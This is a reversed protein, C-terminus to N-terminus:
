VPEVSNQVAVHGCFRGWRQQYSYVLLVITYNLGNWLVVLGVAAVFISALLDADLLKDRGCLPLGM